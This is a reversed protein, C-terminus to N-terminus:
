LDTDSSYLLYHSGTYFVVFECIEEPIVKQTFNLQEVLGSALTNIINGKKHVQNKLINRCCSTRLTCSTSAMLSHIFIVHFVVTAVTAVKGLGLAKCLLLHKIEAM